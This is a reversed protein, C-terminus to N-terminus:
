EKSRYKAVIFTTIFYALLGMVGSVLLSGWLIVIGTESLNDKWNELSFQVNTNLILSGVKFSLVMFFPSTFPNSIVSMALAAVLNFKLFRYLLLVLLTGFGFTPFVSIFTGIGAGLGIEHVSARDRALKLFFLKARRWVNLKKTESGQQLRKYPLFTIISLIIRAFRYAFWNAIKTLIGNRTKLTDYTISECQAMVGELHLAFQSSFKPSNIAVNMEISGYSSLHNLNFSGITVWKRDVVVAKGHLVSKHWEYLEVNHKLLSGYLYNAARKALPIDSIGSLILKVKVGRESAKKLINRFKRNPLFYSGVIIIENKAARNAKIYSKYIDKKYNLWDNQLIRMLVDERSQATPKIIEKWFDKKKFYFNRCLKQLLLGIEVSEILVAYDLWPENTGNGHYKDAINIGGILAIEGDAVVVKHHLRRGLYFSNAAFIPSFFRINIGQLKLDNIFQKTLSYSGYADLLVYVKVKRLAAEKLARAIEIGTSDQEFIYTQLHIETKANAIIHSLRSFYDEGSFVLEVKEASQTDENLITNSEEKIM